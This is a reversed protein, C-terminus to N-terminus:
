YYPELIFSNFVYIVNWTCLILLLHIYCDFVKSLLKRLRIEFIDRFIEQAIQHSSCMFISYEYLTLLCFLLSVVVNTVFCFFFGYLHKTLWGLQNPPLNNHQSNSERCSRIKRVYLENGSRRTRGDHRILHRFM